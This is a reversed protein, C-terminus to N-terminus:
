ISPDKKDLYIDDSGHHVRHHSPTYFGWEIPGLKGVFQTHLLFQYALNVTHVAVIWLPHFGLLPLPWWFPMGLIPTTWSLRGGTSLNFLASSHHPVHAAWLLPVRHCSRHFAYYCLDHAVVLAIWTWWRGELDFVRHEYLAFSIAVALARGAAGVLVGGLALVLNAATNELTYRRLGLRASVGAEVAVLV